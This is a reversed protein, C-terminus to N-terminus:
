DHAQNRPSPPNPAPADQRVASEDEVSGIQTTEARRAEIAQAGADTLFSIHGRGYPRSVILGRRELDRRVVDNAITKPETASLQGLVIMDGGSMLPGRRGYKNPGAM